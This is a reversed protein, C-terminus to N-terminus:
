EDMWSRFFHRVARPRLLQLVPQLLHDAAAKAKADDVSAAIDTLTITWREGGATEEWSAVLSFPSKGAPAPAAVETIAMITAVAQAAATLDAPTLREVSLPRDVHPEDMDGARRGTGSP